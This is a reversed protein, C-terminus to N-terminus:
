RFIFLGLFDSSDVAASRELLRFLIEGYLIYISGAFQDSLKEREEDSFTKRRLGRLQMPCEDGM